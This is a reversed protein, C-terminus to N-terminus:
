TERFYPWEITLLRCQQCKYAKPYIATSRTERIDSRGVFLEPYHAGEDYWKVIGYPPFMFHGEKMENGRRPGKM